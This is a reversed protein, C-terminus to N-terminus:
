EPLFRLPSARQFAFFLFAVGGHSKRCLPACLHLPIFHLVFIRSFILFVAAGVPFKEYFCFIKQKRQSMCNNSEENEERTKRIASKVTGNDSM